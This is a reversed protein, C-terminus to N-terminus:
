YNIWKQMIEKDESLKFRGHKDTARIGDDKVKVAVIGSFTRPINATIVHTELDKSLKLNVSNKIRESSHKSCIM